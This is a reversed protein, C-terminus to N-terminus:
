RPFPAIQGVPKRAILRANGRMEECKRRRLKTTAPRADMVFRILQYALLRYALQYARFAANESPPMSDLLRVRESAPIGTDAFRKFEFGRLAPRADM